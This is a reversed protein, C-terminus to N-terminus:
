LTDFMQVQAQIDEKMAPCTESLRAVFEAIIPAFFCQQIGRDFLLTSVRLRFMDDRTALVAKTNEVHEVLNVKSLKNVSAIIAEYDADDKERVKRHTDKLARERWNDPLPPPTHKRYNKKPQV